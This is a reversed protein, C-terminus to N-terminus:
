IEYEVKYPLVETNYYGRSIEIINGDEDITSRVRRLVSSVNLVDKIEASVVEVNFDDEFKMVTHGKADLWRYLSNEEIKRKATELDENFCPFYHVFYVYPKQDLYYIRKMCLATSGIAELISADQIEHDVELSIIKKELQHNRELISSFSTAKSLKNFLRNSVVVTGIGRKKDIFGEGVLEEIAKRVTIKSVEFMAELENETPLFSNVPYVGDLIDQKIQNAIEAYLLKKM